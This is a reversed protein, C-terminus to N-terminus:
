QVTGQQGSPCCGPLASGGGSDSWTTQCWCSAQGWKNVSAQEGKRGIIHRGKKAKSQRRRPKQYPNIGGGGGGPTSLAVHVDEEGAGGCCSTLCGGGSCRCTPPMCDVYLNGGNGGGPIPTVRDHHWYSDHHDSYGGPNRGWHNQTGSSFPHRHNRGGHRGGMNYDGVRHTHEFGKAGINRGGTGSRWHNRVGRSYPHRHMGPGPQPNVGHDQNRRTGVSSKKLKAGYRKAM